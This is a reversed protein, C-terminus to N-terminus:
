GGKIINYLLGEIDPSELFGNFGRTKLFCGISVLVYVTPLSRNQMVVSNLILNEETM